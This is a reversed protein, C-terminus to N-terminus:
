WASKLPAEPSVSIIQNPNPVPHATRATIKGNDTQPQETYRETREKDDCTNQHVKHSDAKGAASDARQLFGLKNGLCYNGSGPEWINVPKAKIRGILRHPELKRKENSCADRQNDTSSLARLYKKLSKMFILLTMLLTIIPPKIELRGM